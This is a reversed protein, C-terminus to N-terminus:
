EVHKEKGTIAVSKLVEGILYDNIKDDTVRIGQESLVTRARTDSKFKFRLVPFAMKQVDEYSIHSRGHLFAHVASTRTLDQGARIGPGWIVLEHDHIATILKEVYDIMPANHDCPLVYQKLIANQIDVIDAPKLVKELEKPRTDHVAVKRLLEPHPYPVHVMLRFRERLAVPLEYTSQSSEIPNQTAAFFYFDGLSWTKDELTIRKEQLPELLPALSRPNGRNIEDGIVFQAFLPGLSPRSERLIRGQGDEDFMGISLYLDSPLTEPTFQIRSRKVEIVRSIVDLAMTKGVGPEGELIVHGDALIAIFIQEVVDDLEIVERHIQEIAKRYDELFAVGQENGPLRDNMGWRQNKM